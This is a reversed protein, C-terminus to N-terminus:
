ISLHGRGLLVERIPQRAHLDRLRALLDEISLLNSRGMDVDYVVGLGGRTPSPDSIYHFRGGEKTGFRGEFGGSYWAGMVEDLADGGGEGEFLVQIPLQDWPSQSSVRVTFPLGADVEFTIVARAMPEVGAVAVVMPQDGIQGAQGSSPDVVDVRVAAYPRAGEPISYALAGDDKRYMRACEAIWGADAQQKAIDDFFECYSERHAVLLDYADRDERFAAIAEVLAQTGELFDENDRGDALVKELGALGADLRGLALNLNAQGLLTRPNDAELELTKEYAELAAAPDDADEHAAALGLHAQVMFEPPAGGKWALEIAETMLLAAQASEGLQLLVVGQAHLLDARPQGAAELAQTLLASAERPDGGNLANMAKQALEDANM